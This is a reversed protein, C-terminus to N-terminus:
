SSNKEWFALLFQDTMGAIYDCIRRHVAEEPLFSEPIENPYALLFDFSESIIKEGRENIVKIEPSQYFNCFLFDKLEKLKKYFKANFRVIRVQSNQVDELTKIKEKKFNQITDEIIQVLLNRIIRRVIASRSIKEEKSLSEMAQAPIDIKELDELQFFAGRLGDELDASLYAIEDSLDVLQSELHPSFIIEGSPRDFFTEHKQLGELVELNLNMGPFAEYRREFFTVVRLSQKNHDFGEGFTHMKRNLEMEGAHGFPPHGLDHALAITETLDENLQLSRAFDRAIQAVEISHSLRNRFHDGFSPPLVQMKGKLRRFSTSHIIRDRDRQFPLRFPDPNEPFVRGRSLENKQAYPALLNDYQLWLNKGDLM